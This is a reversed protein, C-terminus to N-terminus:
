DVLEERAEWTNCAAPDVRDMGHATWLRGNEPSGHTRDGSNYDGRREADDLVADHEAAGLPYSGAAAGLFVGGLCNAQLESRRTLLDQAAPDDEAARTHHFYQLVGAEGQVHHAYEHSLLFTYTERRTSDNSSDVIDSIGLYLGKNAQCYFAATGATPFNGCPSQGATYWYIRSPPEFDAGTGAFQDAWARDLCDTIDHLFNEMSTPDHADLPPAECEVEAMAGTAYLPNQTLVDSGTDDGAPTDDAAPATGAPLGTAPGAHAPPGFMASVSLFAALGIAALGTCLVISVGTGLRQRPPRRAYRPLPARRGTAATGFGGFREAM